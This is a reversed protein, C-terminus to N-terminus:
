KIRRYRREAQRRRPTVLPPAEASAETSAPAPSPASPLPQGFMRSLDVASVPGSPLPIGGPGSMGVPAGPMGPMMGPFGDTATPAAQGTKQMADILQLLMDPTATGRAAAATIDAIRQQDEARATDMCTDCFYLMGTEEDEIWAAGCDKGPGSTQNFHYLEGCGGCLEFQMLSAGSEGCVVCILTETTM